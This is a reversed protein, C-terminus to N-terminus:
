SSVFREPVEKEGGRKCKEKGAEGGAGRLTDASDGACLPSPFNLGPEPAPLSRLTRPVARSRSHDVRPLLVGPEGARGLWGREAAGGGKAKRCVGSTCPSSLTNKNTVLVQVGPGCGPDVVPKQGADLLVSLVSPSCGKVECGALGQYM